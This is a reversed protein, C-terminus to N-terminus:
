SGFVTYKLSLGGGFTPAAQSDLEIGTQLKVDFLGKYVQVEILGSFVHQPTDYPEIYRGHNESYSLLLKYPFSYFYNGVVGSIGLHHAIFRNNIIGEIPDRLTFFTSGIVKDQFTWGSKYTGNNLYDDYKHFGPSNKSQHMTYYFEYLVSQVPANDEHSIYYFGYRGDPFNEMRRGSLDDFISNYFFQLDFYPNTRTFSVEYGGLHNAIIKKGAPTNTLGEKGALVKLYNRWDGPQQGEKRSFGDWQAFHQVGASLKWNDHKYLLRFFKHHIRAQEVYGDDGFWFEEWSLQLGVFGNGVPWTLEHSGLQVGPLPAANISWLLNENSASLGNYYLPRNKKGLTVYFWPTNLHTYLEAIRVNSIQDNYNIGGGFFLQIESSLFTSARGTLTSAM